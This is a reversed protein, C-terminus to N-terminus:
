IYHSMMSCRYSNFNSSNDMSRSQHTTPPPQPSGELRFGDSICEQRPRKPHNETTPALARKRRADDILRDNNPHSTMRQNCFDDTDMLCEDSSEARNSISSSTLMHYGYYGNSSGHFNPVANATNNLGSASFQEAHHPQKSSYTVPKNSNVSLEFMGQAHMQSPGCPTGYNSVSPM